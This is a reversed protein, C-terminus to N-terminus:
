SFSAILIFAILAVAGIVRDAVSDVEKFKYFDKYSKNHQNFAKM